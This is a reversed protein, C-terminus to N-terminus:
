VLCILRKFWASWVNLGRRFGCNTDHKWCFDANKLGAGFIPVSNTFVVTSVSFIDAKRIKEQKQQTRNRPQKKLPIFSLCVEFCFLLFSLLCCSALLVVVYDQKWFFFVLCCLCVIVCILLVLFCVLAFADFRFIFVKYSVHSFVSSNCPFLTKIFLFCFLFCFLVFCYCILFMGFVFGIYFCFPLFMFCSVLVFVVYYIFFCGFIFAVQTEFPSTLFTQKFSVLLCSCLCLCCIFSLCFFGFIKWFVQNTSPRFDFFFYPIEFHLVFPLCPFLVSNSSFFFVSLGKPSVLFFVVRFTCSFLRKPAKKLCFLVFVGLVFFLEVVVAFFLCFFVGKQM